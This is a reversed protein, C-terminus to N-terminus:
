QCRRAVCKSPILVARVRGRKRRLRLGGRTFFMSHCRNYPGRPSYILHHHKLFSVPSSSLSHLLLFLSTPLRLNLSISLFASVFFYPIFTPYSCFCSFLLLYSVFLTKNEPLFFVFSGCFCFRLHGQDIVVLRAVENFISRSAARQALM